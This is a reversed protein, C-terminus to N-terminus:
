TPSPNEGFVVSTPTVLLVVLSTTWCRSLQLAISSMADLGLRSSPNTKEYHARPEKEICIKFQRRQLGTGGSARPSAQLPPGPRTSASQSPARRRSESRITGNTSIAFSKASLHCWYASDPACQSVFAKESRTVDSCVLARPAGENKFFL